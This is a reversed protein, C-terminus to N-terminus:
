EKQKRKAKAAKLAKELAAIEEDSLEEDKMGLLASVLQSPSSQFFTKMLKKLASSSAQQKDEKSRYLYRKGQSYQEIVGKEVMRGLLARVASYSPADAMTDMVDRASAEGLQFVIDLIQRERRSLKVAGKGELDNM